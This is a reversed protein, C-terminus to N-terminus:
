VPEGPDEENSDIWAKLAKARHVRLYGCDNCTLHLDYSRIGNQQNTSLTLYCLTKDEEQIAIGWNNNKCMPCHGAPTVTTFFRVADRFNIIM